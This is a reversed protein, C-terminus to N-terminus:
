KSTRPLFLVPLLLAFCSLAVDGREVFVGFVFGFFYRLHGFGRM